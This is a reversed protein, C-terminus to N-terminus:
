YLAGIDKKLDFASHSVKLLILIKQNGAKCDKKKKKQFYM